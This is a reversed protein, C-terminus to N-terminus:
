HGKNPGNNQQTAKSRKLQSKNYLSKLIQQQQQQQEKKTKGNSFLVYNGHRVKCRRCIKLFFTLSSHKVVDMFCLRKPRRILPLSSLLIFFLRVDFCTECYTDYFIVCM